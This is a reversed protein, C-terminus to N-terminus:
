IFIMTLYFDPLFDHNGSNITGTLIQWDSTNQNQYPTVPTGTGPYYCRKTEDKDNWLWGGTKAVFGCPKGPVIVKAPDIGETKYRIRVRYNTNRKVAPAAAEWNGIFMCRNSLESGPYVGEFTLATPPIYGGLQIAKWPNWASGYIAWQSLWIRVLQIGNQSMKQFNDRNALVPNVWDVDRYNMNYGLGPFYTGDEFEFYRPDKKSVRVFGRNNSATVTFSQPETETIGGKDQARIKFQWTGEQNPSFRVKWFFRGSPYFWEQGSKVADEFEQYYFAPQTYVTQWNDPTFLADVSIGIEPKIGAPPNPDYPFQLNQATSDKIEFTIELKERRSVEGGGYGVNEIRPKAFAISSFFFSFLFLLLTSFLTKSILFIM